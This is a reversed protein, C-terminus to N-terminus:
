KIEEKFAWLRADLRAKKPDFQYLFNGLSEEIKKIDDNYEPFRLFLQTNAASVDPNFFTRPKCSNELDLFKKIKETEADYDYILDEFQVYLVNESLETIISMQDRYFEIFEDVDFTPTFRMEWGNALQKSVLYLDRPDRNVVIAKCPCDFYRFCLEPNNSPFPQDLAIIRKSTDCMMEILKTTYKKTERLFVDEDHVTVYMKHNLFKRPQALGLKDFIRLYKRGMEYKFFYNLRNVQRRDYHWLGGEYSFTILSNIYDKSVKEFESYNMFKKVYRKLDYSEIIKIFKKIAADGSYFRIPRNVLAEELDLVGDPDYLFSLEMDDGGSVDDFERLLDMVAGSGTSGFGSVGVIM